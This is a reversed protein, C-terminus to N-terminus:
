SLRSVVLSANTGGFGFSNALAARVPKRVAVNPTFNLGLEACAPDTNELNITPPVIGDRIALVAAFAGMAGAGGLLHGTMSKVGSVHLASKNEAFVMAIAAAEEGDGGPTSTAHASVYDIDSPKLGARDLAMRMSRASGEAGPALSSLHYADASAGYGLLEAYIRAGRRQAHELEELVFVVSGESLVFGDRDQDYPRSAKEPADNRTSLARMQAFAGVALPTITSEAGGSIMVDADGRAITAAAEGLAHGSTACASAVSMNSGRLDLLLSVQGALLNPAIQIIFFPSIKRFGGTQWTTHMAEMEPLGGLGVGLNVGLREPALTARHADLGSDAYAEVAASVGLHTFRGFKKLDKPTMAQTLAEQGPGRPHLPAPLLRAPDFERVEGAIQATCNTADFRTIRGIGSRGATLAAWTAAASNGCPTVAGVGTIVVRRSPLSTSAM